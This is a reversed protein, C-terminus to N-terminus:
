NCLSNQGREKQQMLGRHLINKAREVGKLDENTPIRYNIGCFGGAVEYKIVTICGDKEPIKFNPNIKCGGLSCTYIDCKILKSKRLTKTRKCGACEITIKEENKM